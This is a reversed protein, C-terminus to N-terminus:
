VHSSVAKKHFLFDALYGEHPDTPDYGRDFEKGHFVKDISPEFVLDDLLEPTGGIVSVILSNRCRAVFESAPSHAVCLFPFPFEAGFLRDDADVLLVTPRLFAGEERETLLPQRSIEATLDRAGRAVAAAIAAAIARAAARDPFAPVTADPDDLPRIEFRAMEAALASAVGSADQDTLVASVNTCLRGCGQSALLGLRQAVDNELATRSLVAKSRGHHYHHVQFRTHGPDLPADGSALMQDAGEWFVPAEHFALSVAGAPLGAARLCQILLGASFPDALSACLVVPRRMALAILWNINITPFNAPLRVALNRGRPVFRWSCNQLRGSQFARLRCCGAQAELIERIRLLDAALAAYAKRVRVQPLGSVCSTLTATEASNASALAQGASEFIGIWERDPVARLAPATRSALELMKWQLLKPARGAQALPEGRGNTLQYGAHTPYPDGGLLCASSHEDRTENLLESFVRVTNAQM